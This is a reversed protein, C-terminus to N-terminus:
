PQRREALLARLPAYSHRHEPTPGLARLARGHEATGYGNHRELGYGPYEAALSDMLRDREVKAIVSAAAITLCLADGHIVAEQACHVSPLAFADILLFDPGVGLGRVAREMALRGAASLGHADLLAASVLGVGVGVACGRIELFLRERQALSLQKSDSLGRLRQLLRPSIPPLVVAAAVLPGAWSGRGAEDVGAVSRYGSRALRREWRVGAPGTPRARRVRATRM